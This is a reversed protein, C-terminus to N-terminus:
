PMYFSNQIITVKLNDFSIIHSLAERIAEDSANEVGINEKKTANKWNYFVFDSYGVSSANIFDTYKLKFSAVFFHVPLIDPQSSIYEWNLM